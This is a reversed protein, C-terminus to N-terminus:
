RDSVPLIPLGLEEALATLKRQIRRVNEPGMRLLQKQAPSLSELEPDRYEYVVGDESPILVVPGEPVPVALLHDIAGTLTEDFSSSPFGLRGYEEEFLPHLRRYLRATGETDLSAVVTAALDYRRYSSTDVVIRGRPRRVGFDGEPGMFDLEDRPSRGADISVVAGVFRHVLGDTALWALWEPHSSLHEVAARVYADSAGVEPLDPFPEVDPTPRYESMATDSAGAAGAPGDSGDGSRQWLWISAAAVLLLGGAVAARRAGTGHRRRLREGLADGKGRGRDEDDQRM